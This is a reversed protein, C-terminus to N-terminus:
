YGNKDKQNQIIAEQKFGKKNWYTGPCDGRLM